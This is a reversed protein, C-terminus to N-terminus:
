AVRQGGGNLYLAHAGNHTSAESAVVDPLGDGNVDYFTTASDTMGDVPSSSVAQLTGGLAEFGDVDRPAPRGDAGRVRTYGFTLPPLRPCSTPAAVGSADEPAASSEDGDCRGEMQVQALLSVHSTPDYGVHYRRVVRRAGALAGTF